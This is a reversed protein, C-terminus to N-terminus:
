VIDYKKNLIKKIKRNRVLMPLTIGNEYALSVDDVTIFDIYEKRITYATHKPSHGHIEFFEMKILFAVIAYIDFFMMGKSNVSIYASLGFKDNYKKGMKYFLDIIRILYGKDM